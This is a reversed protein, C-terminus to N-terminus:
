ITQDKGHLEKAFNLWAEYSKKDPIGILLAENKSIVVETKRIDIGYVINAYKKYRESLYNINQNSSGRLSKGDNLSDIYPGDIIIDSLENVIKEIKSNKWSLLEDLYYGTYIIVGLKTNKRILYLLEYLEDSQLFPEGGSVTIGEIDECGAIETYIADLDVDYGGLMERSSPSMCKYCRKKCGQLWLAYRNGPGLAKTRKVINHVRM